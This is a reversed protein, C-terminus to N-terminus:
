QMVNSKSLQQLGVLLLGVVYRLPLLPRHFYRIPGCEYLGSNRDMFAHFCVIFLDAYGGRQSRRALGKM